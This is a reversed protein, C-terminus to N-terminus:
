WEQTGQLADVKLVVGEGKFDRVLVNEHGISHLFGKEGMQSVVVERRRSKLLLTIMVDGQRTAMRIVLSSHSEFENEADLM